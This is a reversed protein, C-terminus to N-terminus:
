LKGVIKHFIIKKEATAYPRDMKVRSHTYATRTCFTPHHVSNLIYVFLPSNHESSLHKQNHPYYSMELPISMFHSDAGFVSHGYMEFFRPFFLVIIRMCKIYLKFVIRIRFAWHFGNKTESKKGERHIGITKGNKQRVHM